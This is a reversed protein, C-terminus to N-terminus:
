RLAESVASRLTVQQNDPCVLVFNFPVEGGGWEEGLAFSNAWRRGADHVNRILTPRDLPARALLHEANDIIVLYARAPLWKLDNICEDFAPWNRGFYEPFRFSSAFQDFLEDVDLMRMGDLHVVLASDPLRVAHLGDAASEALVHVWPRERAFVSDLITM